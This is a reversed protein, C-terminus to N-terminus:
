LRSFESRAFETWSSAPMRDTNPVADNKRVHCSLEALSDQSSSITCKWIICKCIVSIRLLIVNLKISHEYENEALVCTCLLICMLFYKESIPVRGGIMESLDIRTEHLASTYIDPNSKLYKACVKTITLCKAGEEKKGFTKAGRRNALKKAGM